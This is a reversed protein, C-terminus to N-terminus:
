AKIQRDMLCAIVYAHPSRQLDSVLANAAAHTTFEPTGVASRRM